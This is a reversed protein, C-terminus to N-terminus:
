KKLSQIYKYILEIEESSFYYKPMFSYKSDTSTITAFKDFSTNLISKIIIVKKVGDAKYSAVVKGRGNKGHCHVCSITGDESNEYLYKGYELDTLFNKASLSLIVIISSIIIKM